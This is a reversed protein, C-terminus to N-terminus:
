SDFVLFTPWPGSDLNPYQHLAMYLAVMLSTDISVIACHNLSPLLGQYQKGKHIYVLVLNHYQTTCEDCTYTARSTAISVHSVKHPFGKQM